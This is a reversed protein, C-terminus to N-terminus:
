YFSVQKLKNCGCKRCYTPIPWSFPTQYSLEGLTFVVLFGNLTILKNREIARSLREGQVLFQQLAIFCDGAFV